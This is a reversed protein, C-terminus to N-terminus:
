LEYRCFRGIKINEGTKAIVGKILADVSLKEDRIFPQQLLGSVDSPNMAAIHMVLDHALERFPQSRVVFDTECQLELLVGVRNNHVYTELIAAGTTRGAKKEAKILGRENIFETAKDFDGGADELAKKCEMVGAGTIERLKQVDGATM